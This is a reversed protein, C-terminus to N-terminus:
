HRMLMLLLQKEVDPNKESIELIISILEGKGLNGLVSKLDKVLVM